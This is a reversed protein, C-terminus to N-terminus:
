IICRWGPLIIMLTCPNAANWRKSEPTREGTRNLKTLRSHDRVVATWIWVARRCLCGLKGIAEHCTLFVYISLKGSQATLNNHSNGYLTVASKSKYLFAKFNRQVVCTRSWLTELKLPLLFLPNHPFSFIVDMGPNKEGKTIKKPALVKLTQCSLSCEFVFLITKEPGQSNCKPARVRKSFGNVHQKGQHKRQM